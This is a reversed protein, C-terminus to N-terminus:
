RRAEDSDQLAARAQAKILGWIREVAQVFAPEGQMAETRPRKLEVPVIEEKFKGAEMAGPGGGTAVTLGSRTLARGEAADVHKAAVLDCEHDLVRGVSGSRTLCEPPRVAAPAEPERDNRPDLAAILRDVQRM